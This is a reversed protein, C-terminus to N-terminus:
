LEDRFRELHQRFEALKRPKGDIAQMIEHFALKSGMSDLDSPTGYGTVTEEVSFSNERGLLYDTTVGFLGALKALKDLPPTIRGTEYHNYTAYKVGIAAAVKEQTLEKGRRLKRLISNAVLM